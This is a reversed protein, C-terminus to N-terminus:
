FFQVQFQRSKHCEAVLAKSKAEKAAWYADDAKEKDKRHKEENGAIKM